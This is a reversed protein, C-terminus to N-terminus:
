AALWNEMQAISGDLPWVNEFGETARSYQTAIGSLLGYRPLPGPWRGTPTPSGSEIM